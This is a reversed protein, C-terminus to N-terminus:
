SRARHSQSLTPKIKHNSHTNWEPTNRKLYEIIPPSPHPPTPKIVFYTNSLTLTPTHPTFPQNLPFQTTHAHTHTCNNVSKFLSMSRNDKKDLVKREREGYIRKHFFNCKWVFVVNLFVRKM